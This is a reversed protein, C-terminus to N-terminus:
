NKRFRFMSASPHFWSFSPLRFGGHSHVRGTDVVHMPDRIVTLVDPKGASVLQVREIRRVPLHQARDDRVCSRGEVTFVQKLDGLIADLFDIWLGGHARWSGPARRRRPDAAGFPEPHPLMPAPLDMLDIGLRPCNKAGDLGVADDGPDGPDVALEPVAGPTTVLAIHPSDIRSRSLDQFSSSGGPVPTEPSSDSPPSRNKQPPPLPFTLVTRRGLRPEAAPLPDSM